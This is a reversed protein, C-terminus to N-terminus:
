NGRGRYGGRDGGRFGGRFGGRDGGRFGGRDGGRFGGRDGGRFGGRFGGRDGGRFGSGRPAGGRGRPPGKKGPARPLFKEIPLVDNQDVYVKQKEPIKSPNVGQSPMVSFAYRQFPGLIENITGLEKRNEASSDFVTRNFKPVHQPHTARFLLEKETVHMFEGLEIMIGSPGVFPRGGRGGRDGGRGGRFGGGRSGGRFDKVM